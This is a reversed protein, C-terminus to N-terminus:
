PSPDLLGLVRTLGHPAGLPAPPVLVTLLGAQTAGGDAMPNDGVMVTASPASGLAACADAFIRPDPKAVGIECSLTFSSVLHDLGRVVFPTRVDWGTNSVVGTPVGARSLAELTPAADAHPVWTWPDHMAADIAPGLGDALRDAIGYLVSWRARWVAGDLDRGLAVEEPDEAAQEIDAWVATADAPAVDAGLARAARVVVDPGSPHGFLTDGFDFLVADVRDGPEGPTGAASRESTGRRRGTM